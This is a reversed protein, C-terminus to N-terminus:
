LYTDHRRKLIIGYILLALPTVPVSWLWVFMADDFLAGERLLAPSYWLQALTCDHGGCPVGVREPWNTSSMLWVGFFIWAVLGILIAAFRIPGWKRAIKAVERWDVYYSVAGAGLEM